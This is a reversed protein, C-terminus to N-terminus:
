KDAPNHTDLFQDIAKLMQLRTESTSLWHDEGDLEVFTVPKGAKKLAKYMRKSQDIPVVTDDDGHILMVPANFQAAFNVPSISKLKERETKSDGIVQHWYSIVWHDRGYKRKSQGIMLPLDSVGNISIVCRYLNPTFAGGALASYGGYSAGIICVREPDVYGSDILTKVGDSVDDQMEKGWKGRGALRFDNGFGTSGRFNPQLVIYGKTAFYQAMWDFRLSDYSEPGGHPLAILPRNKPESDGIPLTIIAPIKTGDRAPYRVVKMKAIDAVKYESALPKASMLKRDLLYYTGAGSNGSVSFIVKQKNESWSSINITSDPFSEALKEVIGTMSDDLFEYSPIFGSYILGLLKRNLNLSLDDIDNESHSYLPGYIMGDTLNLSFLGEGNDQGDVFLLSRDDAGVAVINISPVETNQSYVTEWQGSLKSKVIHLQKDEDYEERAIVKGETNVFWDITKNSGKAYVVAFGTNINVKYLNYRALREDSYAPMYTVEKDKNFGIIGGLGTQARHLGKTKNLLVDFEEEKINYVVTGSNENKGRYGWARRTNSGRLLVHNNTIFSTSRAKFKDVNAGFILKNDSFNRIIFLDNSEAREIYSFMKGNPSISVSRYKPLQGYTDIIPTTASLAAM